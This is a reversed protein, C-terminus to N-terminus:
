LLPLLLPLPLPLLLSLFWALPLLLFCLCLCFCRFAQCRCLTSRTRFSPGNSVISNAVLWGHCCTFSTSPSASVLLSNANVISFTILSAVKLWFPQSSRSSPNTIISLLADTLTHGLHNPFDLISCDSPVIRSRVSFQELLVSLSM